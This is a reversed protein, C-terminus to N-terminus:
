GARVGALVAKGKKLFGNVQVSFILEGILWGLGYSLISLLEWKRCYCYRIDTLSLHHLLVFLFDLRALPVRTSSSFLFLCIRTGYAGM